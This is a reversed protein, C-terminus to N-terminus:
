PRGARWDDEQQTGAADRRLYGIVAEGETLLHHVGAEKILCAVEVEVGVGLFDAALNEIMAIGDNDKGAMRQGCILGVCGLHSGVAFGVAPLKM